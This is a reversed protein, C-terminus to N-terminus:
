YIADFDVKLSTDLISSSTIEFYLEKNESNFYPVLIRVVGRVSSNDSYIYSLNKKLFLGSDGAAEYFTYPSASQAVYLKSNLVGLPLVFAAPLQLSTSVSWSPSSYRNLTAINGGAYIDGNFPVARYISAHSGGVSAWASSSAGLMHIPLTSGSQMAYLDDNLNFMTTAGYASSTSVSSGNFRYIANGGYFISGQFEIFNRGVTVSPTGASHISTWNTVGGDYRRLTGLTANFSYLRNSYVGLGYVSGLGVRSHFTVVDVIPDYQYIDGNANGFLVKNSWICPEYLTPSSPTTNGLKRLDTGDFCYIGGLFGGIYLKNSFLIAANGADSIDFTSKAGWSMNRGSVAQALAFETNTGNDFLVTENPSIESTEEIYAVNNSSIRNSLCSLTYLRIEDNFYVLSEATKNSNAYISLSFTSALPRNTTDFYMMLDLIASNTPFVWSGSIYNTGVFSNTFVYRASSSFMRGTLSTQYIDQFINTTVYTANTINIINTSSSAVEVISTVVTNNINTVTAAVEVSTTSIITNQNTVIVNATNLNTVTVTAQVISTVVTNNLNTVTAAVEVVATSNNVITNENTVVVNATNLNTVTIAASVLSTSVINNINTVIVVSSVSSTITTNNLNTITVTVINTGGAVNVVNSPAFTNTVTVRNTIYVNNTFITAGLNIVSVGGIDINNTVMNINTSFFVASNSVIVTNLNTQNFTAVITNSSSIFFNNTNYVSSDVTNTINIIYTGGSGGGTGGNTLCGNWYSVRGNLSNSLWSLYNTASSVATFVQQTITVDNTVFSPYNTLCYNWYAIVNEASNSAWAVFNTSSSVARMVVQTLTVGNTGPPGRAGKEVLVTWYASNTVIGDTNTSPPQGLVSVNNSLVAAINGHYSVYDNTNYLIAASWEQRFVLSTSINFYAIPYATTQVSGDPFTISTQVTLEDVAESISFGFLPWFMLVLILLLKKM